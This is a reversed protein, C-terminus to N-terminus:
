LPKCCKRVGIIADRSVGSGRSFREASVVMKEFKMSMHVRWREKREANVVRNDSKVADFEKWSVGASEGM